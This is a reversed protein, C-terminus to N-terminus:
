RPTVQENGRYVTGPQLEMGYLEYYEELTVFRWGEALLEDFAAMAGELTTDYLDHLLLVGGDFVTDLIEQKVKEADRLDWDRPDITWLIIPTHIKAATKADITGYIPRLYAPDEGIINRIAQATADVQYQLSEDSLRTLQVDHDWGHSAIQHGSSYAYDVVEPHKEVLYGMMFFTARIGRENLADIVRPTILDNPGDDFTVALVPADAAPQAPPDAVPPEEGAPPDQVPPLETPDDAAPPQEEATGPDAPPEEATGPLVESVGVHDAQQVFPPLGNAYAYVTGAGALLLILIVALVVLAKPRLKRRPKRPPIPKGTKKSIIITKTQM